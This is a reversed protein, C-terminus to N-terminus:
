ARSLPGIHQQGHWRDVDVVLDRVDPVGGLVALEAVDSAAAVARRRTPHPYDQVPLFTGRGRPRAAYATSGSNIRSLVVRERHRALLAETDVTLVDHDQDPYAKLMRQLRNQQLWFFVRDNLTALWDGVSMGDQLCARLKGESLPGQDRLVARGQAPHELTVKVPRRARLLADRRDAPVDFTACLDASTLLGRREISPWSGGEAVHYLRPYLRVLEDTLM